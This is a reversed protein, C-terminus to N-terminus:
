YGVNVRKLHVMGVGSENLFRTRYGFSDDRVLHVSAVRLKLNLGRTRELPDQWYINSKFSVILPRPGLLDSDKEGERDDECVQDWGVLGAQCLGRSKGERTMVRVVCHGGYNRGRTLSDNTLLTPKEPDGASMSVNIRFRGEETREINDAEVRM